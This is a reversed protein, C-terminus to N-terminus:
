HKKSKQEQRRGDDRLSQWVPFGGIQVAAMYLFQTLPNTVNYRRMIPKLCAFVEVFHTVMLFGISAVKSANGLHTPTPTISLQSLIPRLVPAQWRLIRAISPAPTLVLWLNIALVFLVSFWAALQLSFSDIVVDSIGLGEKAERHMQELRVRAQGAQMPPSFKYTWSQRPNHSYELTMSESKFETIQPKAYALSRSRRAFYELYHGLSQEHDKNMHSIIRTAEAPAVEAM